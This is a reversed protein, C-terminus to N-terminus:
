WSSILFEECTAQLLGVHEIILIKSFSNVSQEERLENYRFISPVTVEGATNVLILAQMIYACIEM